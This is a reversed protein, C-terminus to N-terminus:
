PIARAVPVASAMDVTTQSTVLGAAIAAKTRVRDIAASLMAPDAPLQPVTQDIIASVETLRSVTEDHLGQIRAAFPDGKTLTKLMEAYRQQNITHCFHDREQAHLFQVVIEDQEDQTLVQYAM